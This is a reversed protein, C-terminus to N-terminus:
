NTVPSVATKLLNTLGSSIKGIVNATDSKRSLVIALSAVGVIAIVVGIARDIM